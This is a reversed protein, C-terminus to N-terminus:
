RGRWLLTNTYKEDGIKEVLLERAPVRAVHGDAFGVNVTKSPHRGGVADSTQGPRLMKDKNIELGPIYSTDEIYYDEEFPVPPDAMANWWCLLTFGSDAILLTSGPHRLSGVSLPPGTFDKEYISRFWDASGKCLARNVGYNACLLDRDLLPDDLRGSPCQLLKRSEKSRNRLIGAYHFWWWGMLDWRGDGVYGGPPLLGSKFDYGYPLSEHEADYTRLSLLLQHMQAQCTVAQARRRLAGSSTLTIAALLAIIAIVVLLEILTFARPRM